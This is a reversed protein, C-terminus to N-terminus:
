SGWINFDINNRKMVRLITTYSGWKLNLMNLTENMSSSSKIAEIMQEETHKADKGSVKRRRWTPTQSHCNPCLLLLNEKVNNQSDGDTHELELTIPKKLWTTLKCSECKRGREKILAEKHNGRGGYIFQTDPHKGTNWRMRSKSVDSMEAYRKKYDVTGLEVAKKLGISNKNRNSPCKNASNECCWKGNKLQFNADLDCGYVCKM